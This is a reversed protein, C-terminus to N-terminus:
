RAAAALRIGPRIRRFEGRQVVQAQLEKEALDDDVELAVLFHNALTDGFQGM